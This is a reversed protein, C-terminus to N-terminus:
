NGLQIRHIRPRGTPTNLMSDFSESNFRETPGNWKMPDVVNNCRRFSTTNVPTTSEFDSTSVALRHISDCGLACRHVMRPLWFFRFHSIVWKTNILRSITLTTSTVHPCQGNSVNQPHCQRNSCRMRSISRTPTSCLLMSGLSRSGQCRMPRYFPRLYPRIVYNCVM